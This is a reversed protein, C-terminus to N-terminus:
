PSFHSSPHPLILAFGDDSSSVWSIISARGPKPTSPPQTDKHLCYCKIYNSFSLLLGCVLQQILVFCFCVFLLAFVVSLGPVLM